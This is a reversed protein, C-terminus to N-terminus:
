SAYCSSEGCIAECNAPESDWEVTKPYCDGTVTFGYVIIWHDSDLHLSTTGSSSSYCLDPSGKFQLQMKCYGKGEGACHLQQKDGVSLNKSSAPVAEVSDKADYAEAEVTSGKACNMVHVYIDARASVASLGGVLLIAAVLVARRSPRVAGKPDSVM